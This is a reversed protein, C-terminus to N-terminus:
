KASEEFIGKLKEKQWDKWSTEKYYSNAMEMVEPKAMLSKLVKAAPNGLRTNPNLIADVLNKVLRKGQDASVPGSGYIRELAGMARIRTMFEYSHSTYDILEEKNSTNDALSDTCKLELMAIRVNRFMGLTNEVAAFYREKNQPFQKVLKKLDTEITVYSSDALHTEFDDALSQPITDVHDIVSRRVMFNPDKLAQHLLAITKEDNLDKKLQYVVESKIAYYKEKNFIAILDDRKREAPTDRLAYVADYRDIMNHANYAQAIWEPYDKVIHITKLINYGPDFLTYSIQKGTKNPVSVTDDKQSIMARVTDKTYDTYDVEFVVPMRFLHTLSDTQHTQEIYFTTRDPKADYRVDYAPVGSHYIWEDFFWDLNIGGTEQFSRYFDHTDV